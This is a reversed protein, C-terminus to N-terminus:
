IQEVLFSNDINLNQLSVLNVTNTNYNTVATSSGRVYLRFAGDISYGTDTRLLTNALILSQEFDSTNTVKNANCGNLKVLVSNDSKSQVIELDGIFSNNLGSKVFDETNISCIALKSNYFNVNGNRINVDGAVTDFVNIVNENGSFHIDLSDIRGGYVNAQMDGASGSVILTGGDKVFLYNTGGEFTLNLNTIKKAYIRLDSINAISGNIETASVECQESLNSGIVFNSIKIANIKVNQAETVVLDVIQLANVVVNTATITLNVDGFFFYSGSRTISIDGSTTCFVVINVTTPIQLLYNTLDTWNNFYNPASNAINDAVYFVYDVNQTVASLNAFLGEEDVGLGGAPKLKTALTGNEIQLGDGVDNLVDYIWKNNEYIAGLLKM